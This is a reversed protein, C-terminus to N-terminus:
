PKRGAPTDPTLARSDDPIIGLAALDAKVQALVAYYCQNITLPERGGERLQWYTEHQRSEVYDAVAATLNETWMGTRFHSLNNHEMKRLM